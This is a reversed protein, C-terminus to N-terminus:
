LRRQCWALAQRHFTAYGAFAPKTMVVLAVKTRMAVRGFLQRQGTHRMGVLMLVPGIVIM